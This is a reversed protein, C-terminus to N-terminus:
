PGDQSGPAPHSAKVRPLRHNTTPANSGTIRQRSRFAADKTAEASKHRASPRTLCLRSATEHGGIDARVKFGKSELIHYPPRGATHRTKENRLRRISM